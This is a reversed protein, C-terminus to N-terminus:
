DVGKILINGQREFIGEDFIGGLCDLFHVPLENFQGYVQGFIEYRSRKLATSAPHYNSFGLASQLVVQRQVLDSDSVIPGSEFPGHLKEVHLGHV